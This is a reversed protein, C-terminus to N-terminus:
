NKTVRIIYSLKHTGTDGVNGFYHDHDDSTYRHVEGDPDNAKQDEWKIYPELGPYFPNDLGDDNTRSWDILGNVDTAETGFCYDAKYPGEDDYFTVEFHIVPDGYQDVVKVLIYVTGSYTEPQEGTQEAMAVSGISPLLLCLLVGITALGRKSKKGRDDRM